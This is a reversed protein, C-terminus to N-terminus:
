NGTSVVQNPPAALHRDHLYFFVASVVYLIAMIMYLAPRSIQAYLIGGVLPGIMRGASGAGSVLGQYLGVQEHPTIQYTRTPVGPWVLMEGLTTVVMAGVYGAYRHTFILVVYSALFFINGLLLHTKVHELRRAVWAVLPQGFLIVGGNVTWLLSYLPLSFGEQHIYSATTTSWQSYAAQDLVLGLLLIMPGWLAAKPFSRVKNAQKSRIPRHAARFAPGRFGTMVMLLFALLLAADVLFTSRLGGAAAVLGATLSGISVGLNQAVYIANIAQRGGNPWVSVSFAYMSPSIFGTFLGFLAVLLAYPWFSIVIFLGVLCTAAGVIGIAITRVGGMRDFLHGGITAGLMTAGSQLALIIGAAALSRHMVTHVYITTFPWFFSMGTSQIAMGLVLIWIAKPWGFALKM